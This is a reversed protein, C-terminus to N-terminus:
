KSMSGRLDSLSADIPESSFDWTKAMFGSQGIPATLTATQETQITHATTGDTQVATPARLQFNVQEADDDAVRAPVQRIGVIKSFVFKTTGDSEFAIDKATFNSDTNYQELGTKVTGVEAFTNPDGDTLVDFVNTTSPTQEWDTTGDEWFRINQNASNDSKQALPFEFRQKQFDNTTGINSSLGTSGDGVDSSINYINLYQIVGKSTINPRINIQTLNKTANEKYHMIETPKEPNIFEFAIKSINSDNVDDYFMVRAKITYFNNKTSTTQTGSLFVNSGNKNLVWGVDRTHQIIWDDSDNTFFLFAAENVNENENGSVDAVVEFSHTLNYKLSSIENGGSGNDLEIGISKKNGNNFFEKGGINNKIKIFNNSPNSGGTNLNSNIANLFGTIIGNSNDVTSKNGYAIAPLLFGTTVTNTAM